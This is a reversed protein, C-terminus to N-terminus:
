PIRRVLFSMRQVDGTGFPGSAVRVWFPVEGQNPPAFGGFILSVLWNGSKPNNTFTNSCAGTIVESYPRVDFQVIKSDNLLVVMNVPLSADPWTATEAVTDGLGFNCHGFSYGQDPSIITSIGAGDVTWAAGTIVPPASNPCTAGYLALVNPTDALTSLTSVTRPTDGSNSNDGVLKSFLIPIDDHPCAIEWMACMGDGNEETTTSVQIKSAILDTPPPKFATLTVAVTTLGAADTKHALEITDSDFRMQTIFQMKKVAPVDGTLNPTLLLRDVGSPIADSKTGTGLVTHYSYTGDEYTVRITDRGVLPTLNGSSFIAVKNYGISEIDIYDHGDAITYRGLFRMDDNYTPVWLAKRRGDLLYLLARFNTHDTRGRIFWTYAQSIFARDSRDVRAVLGTDGDFTDMMRNYKYDLDDVRNPPLHLIPIDLYTDIDADDGLWPQEGILEFSCPVTSISATHMTMTPQEALKARKLPFLYQGKRWNGVVTTFTMSDDALTNIQVVEYALANKRLLAYGGQVFERGTTDVAVVVDSGPAIAAGLKTIDHYIPLMFDGAGLANVFLDFYSRENFNPQAGVDFQRRPTTRIARRQESANNSAMIDTYFVFRELVDNTWDCDFSWVPLDVDATM